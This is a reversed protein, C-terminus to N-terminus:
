QQYPGKTAEAFGQMMAPMIDQAFRCMPRTAHTRELEWAGPSPPQFTATSM